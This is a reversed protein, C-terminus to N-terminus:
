CCATSFAPSRTMSRQASRGIRCRKVFRCGARSKAGSRRSSLPRGSGFVESVRGAKRGGCRTSPSRANRRRTDLPLALELVTRRTIGAPHVRQRRTVVQQRDRLLCEDFRSGRYLPSCGTWGCSRCM